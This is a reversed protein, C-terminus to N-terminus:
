FRIGTGGFGGSRANTAPTTNSTASGTVTRTVIQQGEELGSLIEVNTDDSIGITVEVQQPAINSVVGQNGGTEPLAPNFVQVYSIGNLTKVGSSSIVLVDQRVDTQVSANVTMGSKIREDQSDFGIKVKYSVVGQSVTGVADIEVVEGTLTLEEIADFTLTAKDGLNIKTADVENLSLQAIKQNTILTAVTSGTSVTDFRKLSLAAITGAFPATITYHALDDKLEQLNREQNVISQASSQLSIPNDGSSNGIKYIEISRENDRISKKASDLSKQQNLLASLNSNTTLLYGRVNTRMTTITSSVTQNHTTADDVVADLFNLDSQLAQAIATTTDLSSSLLKELDGSESYRTLIKYDLIAKEYKARATKYDREAVDAFTRVASDSDSVNNRFVDINWQSKSLDYGFLVNQMGTVAGPLDLYANSLTNYTDNYITKLNAKADELAEISKEYDIPAQASDKQYQLKAETLSAEADAIDQKAGTSDISALAQGARVVDGAKIGVWTIDGAAKPKIDIQDLTTVQGSAGVSAIITGKKVAGLVFRTESDPSVFISYTWYGGAVLMITIVVGIIKHRKTFNSIKRVIAHTLLNKM